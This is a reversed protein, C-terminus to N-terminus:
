ESHSDNSRDLVKFTCIKGDDLIRFISMDFNPCSAIGERVAWAQYQEALEFFRDEEFDYSRFGYHCPVLCKPIREVDDKVNILEDYIIEFSVQRGDSYALDCTTSSPLIGISACYSRQDNAHRSKVYCEFWRLYKLDTKKGEFYFSASTKWGKVLKLIKLLTDIHIPDRDFGAITINGPLEDAFAVGPYFESAFNLITKIESWTSAKPRIFVVGIFCNPNIIRHM